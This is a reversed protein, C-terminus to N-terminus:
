QKNKFWRAANKGTLRRILYSTFSRSFATSFSLIENTFQFSAVVLSFYLSQNKWKV